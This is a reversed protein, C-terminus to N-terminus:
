RKRIRIIIFAASVGLVLVIIVPIYWPFGTEPRTESATPPAPGEPPRPTESGVSPEPQAPVTEETPPSTEGDSPPATEGDAPQAKLRENISELTREFVPWSDKYNEDKLLRELLKAAEHSGSKGLSEAIRSANEPTIHKSLADMAEKNGIKILSGLAGVADLDDVLETEKQIGALIAATRDGAKIHYRLFSVPFKVGTINLLEAAWTYKGFYDAPTDVERNVRWYLIGCQTWAAQEDAAQKLREQRYALADVASQQLHGREDKSIKELVKVSEEDGIHSLLEVMDKRFEWQKAQTAITEAVEKRVADPMFSVALVAQRARAYDPTGLDKENCAQKIIVDRAEKHDSLKALMIWALNSVGQDHDNTLAVKLFEVDADPFKSLLDDGVADFPTLSWVDRHEWDKGHRDVSEAAKEFAKGFADPTDASRAPVHVLLLILLIAATQYMAYAKM